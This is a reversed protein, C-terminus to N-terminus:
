ENFYDELVRNLETVMKSMSINSEVTLKQKKYTEKGLLIIRKRQPTGSFSQHISVGQEKAFRRLLGMTKPYVHLNEVITHPALAM